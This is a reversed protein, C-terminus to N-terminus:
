DVAGYGGGGGFGEICISRFIYVYMCIYIGNFNSNFRQRTKIKEPNPKSFKRKKFIIRQRNAKVRGDRRVGWYRLSLSLSLFFIM